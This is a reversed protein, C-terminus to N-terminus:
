ACTGAPLTLWCRPPHALLLCLVPPPQSPPRVCTAELIVAVGRAGTCAQVADAIQRTLREQIQLRKAFCDTLRALKSLGIVRGRPLYGIHVHGFFPLMHHECMSYVDIDRVVVLEDSECEFLAGAVLAAPEQAYGSTLSVLSKAMRMPTKLLGERDPDEGLCQPPHPPVDTTLRSSCPAGHRSAPRARGGIV